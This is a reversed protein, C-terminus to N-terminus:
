WQVRSGLRRAAFTLLCLTGRISIIGGKFFYRMCHGISERGGGMPGVSEKLCKTRKEM